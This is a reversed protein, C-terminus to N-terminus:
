RKIVGLQVLRNYFTPDGENKDKLAEEVLAQKFRGAKSTGGTRIQNQVVIVHDAWFRKLVYEGGYLEVAETINDPKSSEKEGAIVKDKGTGNYAKIIVNQM